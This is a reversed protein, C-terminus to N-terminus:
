TSKPARSSTGVGSSSLVPRCHASCGDAHVEDGHMCVNCVTWVQLLSQHTLLVAQGILGPNGLRRRLHQRDATPASVNSHTRLVNYAIEFVPALPSTNYLPSYPASPLPLAADFVVAVAAACRIQDACIGGRRGARTRRESREPCNPTCVKVAGSNSAM